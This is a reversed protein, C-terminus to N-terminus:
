EIDEGPPHDDLFETVYRMFVPDPHLVQAICRLAHRGHEYLYELTVRASHEDTAPDFGQPISQALEELVHCFTRSCRMGLSEVSWTPDIIVAAGFQFCLHITIDFCFSCSVLNYLTWLRNRGTVERENARKWRRFEEELEGGKRLMAKRDADELDEVQAKIEDRACFADEYFRRKIAPECGRWDAAFKLAEIQCM